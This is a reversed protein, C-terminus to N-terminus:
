NVVDDFEGLKDATTEAKLSACAIELMYRTDPTNAAISACIRHQQRPMGSTYLKLVHRSSIEAACVFLERAEDDTMDDSMEVQENHGAIKVYVVWTKPSRKLAQRQRRM